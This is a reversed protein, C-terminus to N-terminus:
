LDFLLFWTYIPLLVLMSILGLMSGFIARALNVGRKAATGAVSFDAGLLVENWIRQLAPLLHLTEGSAKAVDAVVEIVASEGVPESAVWESPPGEPLVRDIEGDAAPASELGDGEAVSDGEERLWAVWSSDSHQDVFESFCRDLNTFLGADSGRANDLVRQFLNSGQNWFAITFVLGSAMALLYITNVARKRSWGRGELRLVFPHVIFALLYALLLPNLVSRVHWAFWACLVATIGLGLNRKKRQDLKHM